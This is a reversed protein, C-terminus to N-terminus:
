RRDQPARALRGEANLGFGHLGFREALMGPLEDSAVPTTQADQPSRETLALEGGWDTLILRRGDPLQRSVLLGAVFRSEPHTATWWNSTEIDIEPVPDPDFRYLDGWEGGGEAQLVLEQGREIVRFRWGLQEHEAGPGWPIPEILTGSGFGVDAHWSREGDFVRLLLHTRPRMAGPPAGVLVRALVPEAEYGLAELAAKLLLNQEFCYGGRGGAVLKEALSSPDLAVPEGVHPALGEFPISTAHARHIEALSPRGGLGIRQLYAELDFM